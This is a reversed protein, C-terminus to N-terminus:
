AEIKALAKQIATADRIDVSNDRNMDLIENQLAATIIPESNLGVLYKQLRTADKINLEKDCNVDGIHYFFATELKTVPTLDTIINNEYASELSYIEDDLKVYVGVVSLNENGLGSVSYWDGWDTVHEIAPMPIGYYYGTFILMDEYNMQEYIEVDYASDYFSMQKECYELFKYELDIDTSFDANYAYTDFCCFSVLLMFVCLISLLKKM